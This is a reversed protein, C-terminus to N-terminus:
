RRTTTAVGSTTGDTSGTSNPVTNTAAYNHLRIFSIPLKCLNDDKTTIYKIITENRAKTAEHSKIYDALAQKTIEAQNLVVQNIKAEENVLVDRRGDIYFGAAFLIVAFLEVGIVIFYRYMIPILGQVLQVLVFLAVGFGIIAWPVWSPILGLLWNISFM